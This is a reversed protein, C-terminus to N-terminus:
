NATVFRRVVPTFSLSDSPAEVDKYRPSFLTRNRVPTVRYVTGVEFGRQTWNGSSDIPVPEPIAGSGSVRSFHVMTQVFSSAGGEVRGTLSFYRGAALDFAAKVDLRGYGYLSNPISTSSCLTTNVRVASDNLLQETLDVQGRLYPFASWLIAVAGAVHPTAMSTGQLSGYSGSRVASRVGVGPATIDPKVRQSGDISVLGRSSFNALLGTSTTFAGVTYSADYVGPPDKVTSCGPGSNGAAVITMIGAARQAEVAARLSDVSCGESPPCSWSNTTLDPAKAPDGQAPTGNVPYPALFFEFCELYTAPTGNGRDM